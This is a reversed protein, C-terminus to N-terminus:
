PHTYRQVRSLVRESLKRAVSDLPWATQTRLTDVQAPRGSPAGVIAVGEVGGPNLEVSVEVFLTARVLRAIERVDALTPPGDPHDPISSNIVDRENVLTVAGSAALYSRVRALLQASLSDVHLLASLMIRPPTQRADSSSQAHAPVAISLMGAIALARLIM